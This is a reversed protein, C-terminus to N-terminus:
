LKTITGKYKKGVPTTLIYYYVGDSHNDGTWDNLYNKSEYVVTGWRNYIILSSNPPLNEIVFADNLGDKVGPTFV